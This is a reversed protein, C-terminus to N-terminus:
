SRWVRINVDKGNEVNISDVRIVLVKSAILLDLQNNVQSARSILMIDNIGIREVEFDFWSVSAVILYKRICARPELSISIYEIDMHYMDRADVVIDVNSINLSRILNPAAGKWGQNGWTIDEVWQSAQKRRDVQCFNPGKISTFKMNVEYGARKNNEM